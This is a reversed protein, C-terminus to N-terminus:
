NSWVDKQIVKWVLRPPPFGLDQTGSPLQYQCSPSPLRVRACIKHVPGRTNATLLLVGPESQWRGAVGNATSRVKSKRAPQWRAHREVLGSTLDEREPREAPVWSSCAQGTVHFGADVRKEQVGCPRDAGSVAGSVASETRNGRSVSRDTIQESNERSGMINGM